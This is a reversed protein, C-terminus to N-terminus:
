LTIGECLWWSSKKDFEIKDSKLFYFSSAVLKYAVREITSQYEISRLIGQTRSQLDVLRRKDDLAPPDEQLDVNIRTYRSEDDRNHKGDLVDTRFQRWERESDLIKDIRNVQNSM